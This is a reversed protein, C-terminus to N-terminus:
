PWEWQGEPPESILPEWPKWRVLNKALSLESKALEIAEELQGPRLKEELQNLDPTTNVASLRQKINEETFKRYGASAPMTSVVKLITEYLIKLKKHPHAEVALGVLGTTLKSAM